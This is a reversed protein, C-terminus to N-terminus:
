ISRDAKRLCELTVREGVSDIPMLRLLRVEVGAVGDSPDTPFDFPRLLVSLDYQRFPLREQQFEIGLLDRALFRVMDERSERDNAVVEIVGTEPEYTMAAEFVPRRPRRILKGYEDFALDDDPLGERYVVIQVLECDEGAFTPRQRDFIDVHVNNSAFRKRIATEFAEVAGADRSLVGNPEGIFGDWMRGRRREDTFRAEEAHLFGAPDNLFMWLARDHANGLADLTARDAIVGFLANQGAEDAMKTVREADNVVRALATEDMEDVLQLLPRVVDRDPGDWDIENPIDIGAQEFYTRLSAAPTNRIFKTVSPM